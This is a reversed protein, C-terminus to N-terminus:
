ALWRTRVKDIELRSGRRAPLIEIELMTRIIARKRELPLAEWRARVQADDGDSRAIEVTEAPVNQAARAAELETLQTTIRQEIKALAGASVQGDAAAEYFSDLRTRLTEIEADVSEGPPAVRSFAQSATPRSLRRCVIEVIHADLWRMSRTVKRCNTCRYYKRGTQSQTHVGCRGGCAGCRVLGTLLFKVNNDQSFARGSEFRRRLALWDSEDIISLWDGDGVIEGYRARKGAYTPTNLIARVHGSTWTDLGSPTKIGRATLDKAISHQSEGGLLRRVMERIIPAVEPDEVTRVYARTHPDYERTYGWKKRGPPRGQAIQWRVGRQVRKSIYGSERQALLADMGASFEDDPDALDHIRGSYCWLVDHERCLKAFEAYASLDRTNRSAEWCVLADVQPLLALLRQYEPRRKRAYRSASIGPDKLVEFVEFGYRECDARCEAEQSEISRGGGQPDHSVRLYILARRSRQGSNASTMKRNTM